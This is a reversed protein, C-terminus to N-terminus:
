LAVTMVASSRDDDDDDYVQWAAVSGTILLV